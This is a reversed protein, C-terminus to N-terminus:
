DSLGGGDGEQDGVDRLLYGFVGWIGRLAEVRGKKDLLDFWKSRRVKLIYWDHPLYARRPEKAGGNDGQDKGNNTLDFSSIPTGPNITPQSTDM